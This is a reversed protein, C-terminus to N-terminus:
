RNQFNLYIPSFILLSFLNGSVEPLPWNMFLKFLYISVVKTGTLKNENESSM